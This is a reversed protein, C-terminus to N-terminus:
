GRRGVQMRSLVTLAGGREDSSCSPANKSSSQAIRRLSPYSLTGSAMFTVCIPVNQKAHQLPCVYQYTQHLTSYLACMNTLKTYYATFPVCILLNPTTHQLLCVYQYTQHLTSYLDHTHYQERYPTVLRHQIREESPFPRTVNM